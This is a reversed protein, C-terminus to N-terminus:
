VDIIVELLNLNFSFWTRLSKLSIMQLGSLVVISSHGRLVPKKTQVQSIVRVVKHNKFTYYIKSLINSSISNNTDPNSKM